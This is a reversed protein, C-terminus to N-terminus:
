SYFASKQFSEPSIDGMKGKLVPKKEDGVQAKEIVSTM